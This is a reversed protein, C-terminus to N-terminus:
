KNGDTRRDDKKLKTIDLPRNKVAQASAYGFIASLAGFILAIGAKGARRKMLDTRETQKVAATLTKIRTKNYAFHRSKVPM